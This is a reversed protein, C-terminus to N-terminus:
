RNTALNSPRKMDTFLNKQNVIDNVTDLLVKNTTKEHLYKSGVHLHLHIRSSAYFTVPSLLQKKSPSGVQHIMDVLPTCLPFNEGREAPRNSFLAGTFGHAKYICM